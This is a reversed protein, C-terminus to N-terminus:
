HLKCSYYFPMVLVLSILAEFSNDTVHSVPLTTCPIILDYWRLPKGFRYLCEGHTQTSDCSKCGLGCGLCEFYVVPILLFCWECHYFIVIRSICFFICKKLIFWTLYKNLTLVPNDYIFCSEGHILILNIQM